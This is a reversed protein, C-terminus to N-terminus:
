TAAPAETAVAPAATTAQAETTKVKRFSTALRKTGTIAGDVVSMALHAIAAKYVADVVDVKLCKFEKKWNIKKKKGFM